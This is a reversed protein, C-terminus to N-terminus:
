YQHFWRDLSASVGPCTLDLDRGGQVWQGLVGAGGSFSWDSQCRRLAEAQSTQGAARWEPSGTSLSGVVHTWLSPTSYYGVQLGSDAYGRAAGRVVAANASPDSSWAFDPVSEVDIWVIPSRLGAARMSRLNFQAAAYGVNALAVSPGSGFPGRAGYRRLTAADPYSLVSYAAARLHRAKVWRVQAALCPNAVFSPGNTLGIVVFAASSTPM